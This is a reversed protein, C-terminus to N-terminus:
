SKRCSTCPLSLTLSFALGALTVPLCLCPSRSLLWAELTGVIKSDVPSPSVPAANPTLAIEELRFANDGSAWVRAGIECVGVEARVVARSRVGSACPVMHIM